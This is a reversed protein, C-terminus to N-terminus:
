LLRFVGTNFFMYLFTIGIPSLRAYDSGIFDNKIGWGEWEECNQGDCFYKWLMGSVCLM